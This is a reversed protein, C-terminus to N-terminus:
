GRARTWALPRGHESGLESGVAHFGAERLCREARPPDFRARDSAARPAGGDPWYGLLLRGGPRLVRRVEALHARPDEWFYVVHVGFVADFGAGPLSGLGESGGVRVEVRGAAIWHRLRLRAHRVMLESPDIGLARGGRLRGALVSLMRGSGCGLELVSDDPALELIEAVDGAVRERPCTAARVVVEGLLAGDLSPPHSRAAAAV